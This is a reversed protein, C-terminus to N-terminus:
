AVGSGQLKAVLAPDANIEAFIEENHAGLV